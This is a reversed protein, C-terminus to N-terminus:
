AIRLLRNQVRKEGTCYEFYVRKGLVREDKGEEAMDQIARQVKIAEDTHHDLGSRGVSHKTSRKDVLSTVRCKCDKISLGPAEYSLKVGDKARIPRRTSQTPTDWPRCTRSESRRRPRRRPTEARYSGLVELELASGKYELPDCQLRIVGQPKDTEKGEVIGNDEARGVSLVYQKLDQWSTFIRGNEPPQLVM